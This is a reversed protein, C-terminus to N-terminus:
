PHCDTSYKPRIRIIVFFASLDASHVNKSKKYPNHFKPNHIRALNKIQKLLFLNLLSFFNLVKKDM